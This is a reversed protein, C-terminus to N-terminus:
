ARATAIPAAVEFTALTATARIQVGLEERGAKVPVASAFVVVNLLAACFVVSSMARAVWLSGGRSMGPTAPLLPFHCQRVSKARFDNNIM